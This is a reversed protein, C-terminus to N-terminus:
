SVGLKKLLRAARGEKPPADVVHPLKVDGSFGLFAAMNAGAGPDELDFAAFKEAGRTSFYNEVQAFHRHCMEALQADSLDTLAAPRNPFYHWYQVREYINFSRGRTHKRVSRIWDTPNRRLLLFKANPYREDLQRYLVPVPVDTVADHKNIVPEIVDTVFELDTERGAVKPQLRVGNYRVPWHITRLGLQEFLDTVSRTGSRHLSLVFCKRARRPDDNSFMGGVFDATTGAILELIRM